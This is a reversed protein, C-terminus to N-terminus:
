RAVPGAPWFRAYCSAPDFTPPISATDARAGSADLVSQRSEPSGHPGLTSAAQVRSGKSGPASPRGAAVRLASLTM